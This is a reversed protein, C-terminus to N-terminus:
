GRGEMHQRLAGWVEVYQGGGEVQQLQGTEDVDYVELQGDERAVM